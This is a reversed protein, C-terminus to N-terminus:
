VWQHANADRSFHILRNNIDTKNNSSGTVWGWSSPVDNAKDCGSFGDDNTSYADTILYTSQPCVPNRSADLVNGGSGASGTMWDGIGAVPTNAQVNAEIAFGGNPSIVPATGAVVAQANASGTCLMSLFLLGALCAMLSRMVSKLTFMQTSKQLIKM